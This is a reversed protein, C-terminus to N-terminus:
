YSSVHFLFLKTPFDCFYVFRFVYLFCMQYKTRTVVVYVKLAFCRGCNCWNINGIRELEEPEDTDSSSASSVKSSPIRPELDNKKKAKEGTLIRSQHLSYSKFLKYKFYFYPSTNIFKNSLVLHLCKVVTSKGAERKHKSSSFTM